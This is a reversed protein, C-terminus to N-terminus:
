SLAAAATGLAALLELVDAVLVRTAETSLVDGAHVKSGIDANRKAVYGTARAFVTASDFAQISGPLDLSRPGDVVAANGVHVTPVLDEQQRLTELRAMRRQAQGWAGFAM